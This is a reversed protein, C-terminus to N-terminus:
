VTVLFSDSLAKRYGAEARAQFNGQYAAVAPSSTKEDEWWNMVSNEQEYSKAYLMYDLVDPRRSIARWAPKKDWGFM